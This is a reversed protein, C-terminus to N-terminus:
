ERWLLDNKRESLEALSLACLHCGNTQAKVTDWIPGYKVTKLGPQFKSRPKDHGTTTEALFPRWRAALVKRSRFHGDTSKVLGM